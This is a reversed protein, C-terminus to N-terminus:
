TSPRQEDALVIQRDAERLADLMAALEEAATEYGALVAIGDILLAGARRCRRRYAFMLGRRLHDLYQQAFADGSMLMVEAGNLRPRLYAAIASLLHTKGLGPGGTIYLPNYLTGPTRAVSLAANYALANQPGTVFHRFTLPLPTTAEASTLTEHHLM